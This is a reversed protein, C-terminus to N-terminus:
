HERDDLGRRWAPDSNSCVFRFLGDRQNASKTLVYMTLVSTSSAALSGLRMSRNNEYVKLLVTGRSSVGRHVGM